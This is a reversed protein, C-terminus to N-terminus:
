WVSISMRAKVKSRGPDDENYKLNLKVCHRFHQMISDLSMARMGAAAVGHNRRRVDDQASKMIDLHYHMLALAMHKVTLITVRMLQHLPDMGSQRQGVARSWSGKSFNFDQYNRSLYGYAQQYQLKKAAFDPFSSADEFQACEPDIDRQVCYGRFRAELFAEWSRQAFPASMSLPCHYKEWGVIHFENDKNSWLWKGNSLSSARGFGKEASSSDEQNFCMVKVLQGSIPDPIGFLQLVLMEKDVQQCLLYLNAANEHMSALSVIDAHLKSNCLGRVNCNVMITMEMMRGMQLVFGDRCIKLIICFMGILVSSRRQDARASQIHLFHMCQRISPTSLQLQLLQYISYYVSPLKDDPVPDGTPFQAKQRHPVFIDSHVRWQKELHKASRTLFIGRSSSCGASKITPGNLMSTLKAFIPNVCQQWKTRSIRLGYRLCENMHLLEHQFKAVSFVQNLVIWRFSSNNLIMKQIIAVFLDPEAVLFPVLSEALDSANYDDSGAMIQMLMKGIAQTRDANRLTQLEM